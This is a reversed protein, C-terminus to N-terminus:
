LFEINIKNRILYGNQIINKDILKLCNDINIILNNNDNDNNFILDINEYNNKIFNIKLLLEDLKNEIQKNEIIIKKNIM